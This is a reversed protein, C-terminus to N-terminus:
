GQSGIDVGLKKELEQVLKEYRFILDPHNCDGAGYKTDFDYVCWIDTDFQSDELNVRWDHKPRHPNDPHRFDVNGHDDYFYNM